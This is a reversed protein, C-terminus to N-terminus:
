VNGKKKLIIKIKEIYFNFYDSKRYILYFVSLMVISITIGCIFIGILNNITIHSIILCLITSMLIYLILYAFYRKYYNVVSKKIGYKYVVYPDYLAMIFLRSIITGIIVGMIGMYKAFVVSIIINVITMIIPRYKGYVFLGYANRYASIVSQMGYVYLNLGMAFAVYNSFLYDNGIWIHIFPNILAAFVVSVFAYLIFCLFQIKYLINESKDNNETVVLNGISATIAEFVKAVIGNIANFIMMYNSYLGVATLGIIKSIIINDTGNLAIAGVRYLVLASTNKKLILIDEKDVKNVANKEKLYPYLRNCKISIILNQLLLIVISIILYLIYNKTSILILIEIISKMVTMFIIIKSAIHGKQDSDMM